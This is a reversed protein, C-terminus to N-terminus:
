WVVGLEAANDLLHGFGWGVGDLNIELYRSSLSLSCDVIFRHCFLSLLSYPLPIEKGLDPSRVNHGESM